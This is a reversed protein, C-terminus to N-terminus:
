YDREFYLGLSTEGASSVGARVTLDPTLDLNITVTSEDTGVLVDTYVNETLYQGLRLAANGSADTTIDLDAFGAGARLDEVLGGGRGALEAVAAALQVAQLPTIASLDRGFILQALVEDEPLEPSSELRLDLDDAPGELIVRVTTGTRAQTQAVLRLFPTFDGQLTASGETLDFRQGLISLRGRLLSFQGAPVIRGTTGTLLVEGGLEADLGRGRIFIRAPASVLVDLALGGGGGDGAVQADRGTASVEARALTQRVPLSPEFHLVPPLDGLAGVGSSPVRIEASAVDVRGALTGGGAIPGSLRLRASAVAEYLTPDRIVLGDGAIALDAVYPAALSVPGAVTLRGGDALSGALSVQATGGALTVSGAIGEVAARLTPAALRAGETRITGSLSSLAFPGDLRLDFAAVGEIRRPEILDNLLGLPARGTAALNATGGALSGAVRAEIGGPGTVLADLTAAGNGTALTGRATAPGPFDPAFLAVDALRADFALTARGGEAGEGSADLALNPFRAALREVRIPGNNARSLAASLTGTGALVRAAAANGPDLNTATADLALAFASLDPAATGTVTAELAGSLPQGALASFPRLDAAAIRATGAITSGQAPPAVTADIVASAGPATATAAITLGGDAARTATGQATARGPLGPLLASADELTVDFRVAGSEEALTGDARLALLPTRATVDLAIDAGQRRVTGQATGAGALLPDLPTGLRLDRTAADFALDLASLDPRLTGTLDARVAGGLPRGLLPGFPAIDPLDLAIDGAFAYGDQPALIGDIRASGLPLSAAVDLAVTGDAAPSATGALRSPGALGPLLASTEALALDFDARGTGDAFAASATGALLSTAIRADEVVFSQPGTRAFRGSLTGEGRLLPDLPTGLRLDRLAADVTLDFLSLDPRLTGALDARLGGALPRDLLPAFPAIDPLDLAAQGAFAYGDQPALTGEIRATGDPLTAALDLALRDGEGPRVTGAVRLPGELGPLLAAAQVLTLDLDASGTGDAFAATVTGSLADTAIRLDEVAFADPGTRAARGSLTGEGALLPDLRPIGLRLDRTTADVALDLLSLDPRLTGSLDAQVAGALDRGLLAGYPALDPLDLALDGAFAYGDRPAVSGEIRASGDPLDAVLDLAVRDDATPSATGRLRAPGELGPLLPAVEALAVDLTATGIGDEFAAEAAASLLDTSLRLNEVTLSDPGTRTLRAFLDGEGALLPDIRDLGLAFGQTTASLAVDFTSLDPAARGSADLVLAGEPALAVPLPRLLPAYPAADEVRAALAFDVPGPADPLGAAQAARLTLALGPAAAQADLVIQGVSDRTATGTVRGPGSLDPLSLGIDAFALDFAAESQGSTIDANATLALAPTDIALRDIRTGAEDRAASLALRGEGALLPDLEDIGLQLDRTAGSLSVDFIGDLPRIASVVTLDAGGGLDLGTLESFRSLDAAEILLSSQVLWRDAAGAVTGELSAEVGPGALTLRRIRLPGGGDERALDLSGAVTSGIAQGLGEDDFALGTAAYDLLGTFRGPATDTAPVITGGGALTLDPVGIGPAFLNRIAFTGTWAEGQARDYAVSLVVREVTTGPAGPLAVPPGGEEGITGQLDIRAPWGQPTIEARGSLEAAQASLGLSTLVLSGDARRIGKVRLGVDPGFFAAAEGALLATLDGRLDLGFARSLVTGEADRDTSQLAFAGAVRPEGDTALSIAAEYNDLPATGAIRLEVAPLGPLDLARAAIGGPAETLDLDLALIRTANSYSGAFTLAGESGEVITAALQAEGEGGELSVSGDLDLAIREGLLAEGLVIRDSSLRGIDISVPLEPLAFPTAEPSPLAPDPVPPRIVEITGASLEQVEIRGRLLASRNWDLVLDEARLWVGEGDAVTISEVTARSSLAGQFGDIVVTRATTSLADEILGTLFGRDREQEEATQAALPSALLALLPLAPFLRRL